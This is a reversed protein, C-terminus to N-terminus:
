LTEAGKNCLRVLDAATTKGIYPADNRNARKFHKFMARASELSPCFAYVYGPRVTSTIKIPFNEVTLPANLTM